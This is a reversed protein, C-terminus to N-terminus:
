CFQNHNLFLRFANRCTYRLTEYTTNDEKRIYGRGRDRHRLTMATYTTSKSRIGCMSRVRHFTGDNRFCFNTAKPCVHRLIILCVILNRYHMLTLFLISKNASRNLKANFSSETHKSLKVLLHSGFSLLSGSPNMDSTSARQNPCQNRRIPVVM